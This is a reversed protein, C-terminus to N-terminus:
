RQHDTTWGPLQDLFTGFQSVWTEVHLGSAHGYGGPAIVLRGSPTRDVARRTAEVLQIPNIQDDAFNIALMPANIRDVAFAPDYDASSAVDYLTDNADRGDWAKVLANYSALTNARDPGMDQLKEATSTMLTFLPAVVQIWLRPSHSPDYTGGHWDPDNRIANIVIERWMLNRGSIQMPMCAIPVFADMANPFREAWLWTLMGGQSIGSVLKLHDIGLAQLLAHQAEVKDVYGYHPFRAQLGDSPKSSRGAGVADPLVIYYRQADLPRDPHFLQDAVTPILFDRGMGTTGHLLLVANTVKGTADRQPTGLTTYHLTLLPLREGDQFTFDRVEVDGDHPQLDNAARVESSLTLLGLLM